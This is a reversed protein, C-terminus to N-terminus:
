RIRFGPSPEEDTHEVQVGSVAAAPPGQWLWECLAELAEAEGHALVEVRGDRLNRAWGSVGLRAAEQATAARYYVGQVRGSVLYRVSKRTGAM